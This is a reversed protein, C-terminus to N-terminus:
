ASRGGAGEREPRARGRDRGRGARRLAPHRRLHQHAGGERGQGGAPHPLRQPDAGRQRRRGRRPLERPQRRGAQHHGHHGHGPRRREGHLRRQRGRAQHLQPQVELGRGRASGGRRPRAAGAPRPPPLARQRRLQDQRRARAADGDKTILFPNIELLSADMAEFARYLAQMFPSPRPWRRRPCGSRRVRAQAGPLAPLGGGPRGGGQPDGEPEQGRGGRHGHRGAGLGHVGAIGTARDVVIALYMERSGELDMGQEILLRRVVRGEPGTQHTNLTM